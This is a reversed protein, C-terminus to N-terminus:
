YRIPQGHGDRVLRLRDEVSDALNRCTSLPIKKWEQLLKKWLGDATKVKSGVMMQGLIPWCNEVVSLDPSGSPWDPIWDVEQQELWDRVVKANHSGDNDQQLIWDSGYIKKMDQFVKRELFEKFDPGTMSKPIRYLPTLGRYGIGGWVRVSIGYKETGRPEPDDSLELWQGRQSYNLGFTKEDTFFVNRWYGAPRQATAFAVRAERQRQTLKPKKPRVRFKLEEKQAQRVITSHDVHVGISAALEVAVKRSSGGKKRKLLVRMKKKAKKSLKEPRGTRPRDTLKEGRRYRGWWRNTFSINYGWREHITRSDFGQKRMEVVFKRKAVRAEAM